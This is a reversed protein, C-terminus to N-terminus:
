PLGLYFGKKAEADFGIKEYFHHAEKRSANSMLLVKYCNKERAYDVAKEVVSKGYGQQRYDKDTVVNELVAFPRQKRVLNPIITILCTSVPTDGDFAMFCRIRKDDLIQKWTEMFCDTDSFDEDPILQEYLSLVAKLDEKQAIRIM